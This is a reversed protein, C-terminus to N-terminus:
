LLFSGTHNLPFSLCSLCDQQSLHLRLFVKLSAHSTHNSTALIHLASWTFPPTHFLSSFHTLALPNLIYWKFVFGPPKGPPGTPLFGSALTPSMAKIGPGPAIIGRAAALGTCWLQQLGLAGSCSAAVVILLWAGGGSLLGLRGRPSFARACLCLGLM